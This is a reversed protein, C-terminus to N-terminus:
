IRAKSTQIELLTVIHAGENATAATLMTTFNQNNISFLIDVRAFAIPAQETGVVKWNVELSQGTNAQVGEPSSTVVFPGASRVVTLVEEDFGFGQDHSIASFRFKLTRNTSPLREGKVSDLENALLTSLQPIYCVVFFSNDRSRILPRSGRDTNMDELPATGEGLDMQKWRYVDVRHPQQVNGTLAFPTNAPIYADDGADANPEDIGSDKLVGCATPLNNLHPLV